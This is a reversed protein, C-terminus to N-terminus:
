TAKRSGGDSGRSRPRRQRNGTTSSQDVKARRKARQKALDDVASKVKPPALAELDRLVDSLQKAIASVSRDDAELMRGALHDRLATLAKVRDGTAAAKVLDM